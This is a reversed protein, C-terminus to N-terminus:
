CYIGGQSEGGIPDGVGLLVLPLRAPRSRNEDLRFSYEAYVRGMSTRSHMM